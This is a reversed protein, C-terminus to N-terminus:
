SKIIGGSPQAKTQNQYFKTDAQLMLIDQYSNQYFLGMKKFCM